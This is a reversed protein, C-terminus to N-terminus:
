GADVARVEGFELQFNWCVDTRENRATIQRLTLAFVNKPEIYISMANCIPFVIKNQKTNKNQHQSLFIKEDARHFKFFLVQSKPTLESKRFYKVYYFNPNVIVEKFLVWIYTLLSPKNCDMYTSKARMVRM